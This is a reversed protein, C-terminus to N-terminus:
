CHLQPYINWNTNEKQFMNKFIFVKIDVVTAVSIASTNRADKAELKQNIKFLTKLPKAKLSSQTFAEPPAPDMGTFLLYKDWNFDGLFQLYYYYHNTRDYYLSIWIIHYWIICFHLYSLGLYSPEKQWTWGFQRWDLAVFMIWCKTNASIGSKALAQQPWFNVCFIDFFLFVPTWKIYFTLNQWFLGLERIYPGFILKPGM